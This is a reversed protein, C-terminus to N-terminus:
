MCVCSFILISHKRHLYFIRSVSSSNCTYHDAIIYKSIYLSQFIQFKQVAHVTKATFMSRINILDGNTFFQYLKITGQCCNITKIKQPRLLILIDPYRSTDHKQQHLKFFFFGSAFFTGGQRQFIDRLGLLWTKTEFYQIDHM